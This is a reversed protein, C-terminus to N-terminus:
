LTRQEPSEIRHVPCCEHAQQVVATDPFFEFLTQSFTGLGCVRGLLWRRCTCLHPLWPLEIFLNMTPVWLVGSPVSARLLLAWLLNPLPCPRMPIPTVPIVM